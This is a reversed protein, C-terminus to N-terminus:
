EDEKSSKKTTKKTTKAAAKKAAKKKAKKKTAKKKTKREPFQWQLEGEENYYLSAKFKRGRMSVFGFLEDTKEGNLMRKIQDPALYRYKIREALRFDCEKDKKRPINKVCKYGSGQRTVESKCKPCKGMLTGEPVEERKFQGPTEEEDDDGASADLEIEVLGDDQLVLYGPARTGDFGTMPGIKKEALLRIVTEPFLYKGKQDKNITFEDDKDASMYSFTKEILVKGNPSLLKAGKPHDVAFVEENGGERSKLAEVLDAVMTRIEKDWQERSYHGQAMQALRYEWNGTLDPKALVGLDLNRVLRVLTCGLPTPLITRGSRRSLRKRILDEVIAARTAPTGIGKEKLEELTDDDLVTEEGDEGRPVAVDKGATEMAKVLSGDTYRSPPQTEKDLLEVSKTAVTGDDNLGPLDKHEPAPEVARWGPTGLRRARTVFTEDEVVTHRTVNEWEAVGLLVAMFRRLILEYIKAEDDKFSTPNEGTPILAFHDSVKADNFVRDRRVPKLGDVTGGAEALARDVVHGLTGARLSTVLKPIETAYDTPLYRSSTRPYTVAKKAEYLRQVVGLTHDLTYGFRNSAERQITTLDFLLPPMEKRKTHKETAVGPKGRVKDVIAQATEKKLVRDAKKGDENIGSWRSEYVGNAGTDFEADIQFYPVPTFGDIARERDVLFALTPTKVRGVAFFQRARGMFKKTFARTGNMGVMWDAEDRAYAASRLPGYEEASKLNDFATSIAKTTMSQLWMRNVKKEAAGAHDLVLNFILEGERGADCANVITTVQKSKMLRVLRKLLETTKAQGQRPVRQFADPLIPLDGLAWRKYKADYASPDQLELLHGSAWAIVMDDREYLLEQKKFGGLVKAFDDAVSKKETVVLTKM